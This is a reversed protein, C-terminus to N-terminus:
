LGNWRRGFMKSLPRRSTLQSELIMFEVAFWYRIGDPRTRHSTSIRAWFIRNLTTQRATLLSESHQKMWCQGGIMYVNRLGRFNAQNELLRKRHDVLRKEAFSFTGHFPKGFMKKKLKVGAKEGGTVAGWVGEFAERFAGQGLRPLHYGAAWFLDPNSFYLLPQGDQQYGKNPLSKEGNKSSLSGLYGQHSMLLDLVLQTDLVWDRPDNFVMVADIKLFGSKDAFKEADKSALTKQSLERTHGVYNIPSAFPMLDPYATILDGPTIM